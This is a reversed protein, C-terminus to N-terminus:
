AFSIPGVRITVAGAKVADDAMELKGAVESVWICFPHKYDALEIRM